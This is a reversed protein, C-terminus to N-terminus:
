LFLMFLTCLVLNVQVFPVFEKTFLKLKENSKMQHYVFILFTNFVMLGLYFFDIKLNLSALFFATGATVAIYSFWVFLRSHLYKAFSIYVIVPLLSGLMGLLYQGDGFISLYTGLLGFWGLSFIFIPLFLSGLVFFAFAIKEIHLVKKTLLAIGYFLLSVIAISESKM